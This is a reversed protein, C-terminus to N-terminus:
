RAKVAGMFISAALVAHLVPLGVVPFANMVEESPIHIGLNKQLTYLTVHAPQVPLNIGFSSNLELFFESLNSVTCRIVVTKRDREEDVAYRFDDLFSLLTIPRKEVFSNFFSLLKEEGEELNLGAATFINEGRCITVHFNDKKLLIDGKWEVTAPFDAFLSEDVKLGIYTRVYQYPEPLM